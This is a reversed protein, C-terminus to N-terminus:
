EFVWGVGWGVRRVEEDRCGRWEGVVDRVRGKRGMEVEDWEGEVRELLYGAVVVKLVHAKSMADPMSGGSEGERGRITGLLVAVDIRNRMFQDHLFDPKDDMLTWHGIKRERSRSETSSVPDLALFHKLHALPIHYMGDAIDEIFTGLQHAFKECKSATDTDTDTSSPYPPDLLLLYWPTTNPLVSPIRNPDNQWEPTHLSDIYKIMNTVITKGCSPWWPKTLATGNLLPALLNDTLKSYLPADASVCAKFAKLFQEHVVEPIIGIDPDLKTPKELLSLINLNRFTIINDPGLAYMRFWAEVEENPLEEKLDKNLKEIAAPPAIKFTNYAVFQELVRRPLYEVEDGNLLRSIYHPIVPAAVETEDIGHKRLFFSVWRSSQHQLSAITPLLIRDIFMCGRESSRPWGLYHKVFLETTPSTDDIDPYTPLVLTEEAVKWDDDSVPKLEHLNGAMPILTELIQFVKEAADTSPTNLTSLLAKTANLRVDIHIGSKLLVSIVSFAYEEDVVETGHLLQALLKITTVKIYTEPSKAASDGAVFNLIGDAFLQIIHRADSASLRRLFSPTMLLRHWSSANPRSFITRLVLDRALMPKDSEACRIIMAIALEQISSDGDEDQDVASLKALLNGASLQLLAPPVDGCHNEIERQASFANMHDSPLDTDLYVAPYLADEVSPLPKELLSPNASGHHMELYLLEPLVGGKGTDHYSGGSRYTNVENGPVDLPDRKHLKDWMYEASWVQPTTLSADLYTFKELTRSPQDPRGAEFPNWEHRQSADDVGPLM